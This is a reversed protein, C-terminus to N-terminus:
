LRLGPSVVLREVLAFLAQALLALLAAPIAGQLILGTDALRIGTLIPQGYGGAGILAGLTATGINIVAATKIGALITPAALPLEVLRLRAARTLGLADASDTLSRSIGGLGTVTNRLVPLISYLFLAAIAPAAGIGLLPIMFVLLALSPITQLVGAVALVVRGLRPRRSAVVGLPVALLIAAALSVVVLSLHEVTRALLAEGLSSDPTATLGLFRAAVETESRGDIKVAANMAAMEDVDIRGELSTLAALAAPHRSELDARYAVLARYDPFYGRDDALVRVGYRPIEADTTYVDVLDVEGAALARYALDHQLGRVQSSLGYAAALGPWGDARDLFENSLGYRLPGASSLDSISRLGLRSATSELLGLGYRNAFGLPEGLAVGEAAVARRLGTLDDAPIGGLIEESLTGTYEVYLDIEGSRLAEWLVRTGGLQRRHSAPISAASLTATVIEGLVVGETFAKSGVVVGASGGCASTAAATILLWPAAVGGRRM